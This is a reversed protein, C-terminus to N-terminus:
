VKRAHLSLIMEVEGESLGTRQAISAMNEGAAALSIVERRLPNAPNEPEVIIPEEKKAHQNSSRSANDAVRRRLPTKGSISQAEELKRDLADVLDRAEMCRAELRSSLQTSELKIQELLAQINKQLNKVETLVPL